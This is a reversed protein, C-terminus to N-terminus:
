QTSAAQTSVGTSLEKETLSISAGAQRAVVWQPFADTLKKNAAWVCNAHVDKLLTDKTLLFMSNDDNRCDTDRYFFDFACDSHESGVALQVADVLTGHEFTTPQLLCPPTDELAVHWASATRLSELVTSCMRVGM